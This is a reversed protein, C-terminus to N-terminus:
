RTSTSKRTPDDSPNVYNVVFPGTGYIQVITEGKATAFHRMQKPMKLFKPFRAHLGQSPKSSKGHGIADPLILYYRTADFYSDPESCNAESRVRSSGKERGALATSFSCPM